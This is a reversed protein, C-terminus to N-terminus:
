GIRLHVTQLGFPVFLYDSTTINEPEFQNPGMLLYKDFGSHHPGFLNRLSNTIEIEITNTGPRLLTTIDISYPKWLIKGATTGNVRVEASHYAKQDFALEVRKDSKDIRVTRRFVIRGAFFPFGQNVLDAAKFRTAMRSISFSRNARNRVAFQGVLYISELELDPDGVGRLTVENRGSRLLHGIEVKGFAPDLWQQGKKFSVASGNVSVRHKDPCEVVLGVPGDGPGTVSFQYRAAFSQGPERVERAASLVYQPPGYSGRGLRLQCFDITLANDDFDVLEWKGDLPTKRWSNSPAEPALSSPALEPDLCLLTSAGGPLTTKLRTKGSSRYSGVSQETGSITDWRTLRGTQALTVTCGADNDFDTNTLLYFHRGEILRHHYVVKNNGKGTITVDADVSRNLADKLNRVTNKVVSGKRALKHARGARDKRGEICDPVQDLFVIKGGNAQFKKLLKLTTLRLTRAPPVVIVRYSKAGVVFQDKRVSGHRAIIQEDGLDYDRHIALLNDVVKKFGDWIPGERHDTVCDIYITRSRDLDMWFSEITHIVLIDNVRVGESTVYSLRAMHDSLKRMDSWYPQHWSITPPFFRKRAGRLSYLTVNPVIFNVGHVLHWDALGKFDELTMEHGSGSFVETLRRPKELQDAVSAVQKPELPEPINRGIHDMGPIHMWEYHQMLGAGSFATQNFFTKEEVFHGTSAMRNKDCWSFITKTFTETFLEGLTRYFDYRIRGYDGYDCFLSLVNERIDYGRKSRFFRSFNETWPVCPIREFHQCFFNYAFIAPEDTFIGPVTKGLETGLAKRYSEHTIDMFAKVVSPKMLDVYCQGGFWDDGPADTWDYLFLTAEAHRNGPGGTQRAPIVRVKRPRDADDVEYTRILKFNKGDLPKRSLILAKIRMSPGKAPVKGGAFGSPWKDEDYLWAQMSRKRAERVCTKVRDMWTRSLYPTVRGMTSYMFFGGWGAKEMAYIQRVLEEDKLDDNWAWWPAPRYENPPNRFTQFDM